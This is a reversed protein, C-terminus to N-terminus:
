SFVCQGDRAVVRGQSIVWARVPRAVVLEALTEGPLVVFDARCGVALGYGERGLVAAGGRTVTELTLELLADTRFGNRWGLLMARELMDANGFPTWADRIADSGSFVQVGASRLRALPPVPRDGPGHTMIAIRHEVLLDLLQGLEAEDVMGLCFAHSVAVKGALGLARTREVILRLEWAGLAGGDHLHIDVGVGHREAIGFVVDLHAVPDGDLGAPDIGGILDAGDKAARDLLEATGPRTVIGSQPFAVIQISVIDKLKARIALVGEFHRLGIETDIDTHNRIHLTGRSIAQRALREIQVEPSLQLLRRLRRENEIREPVTPGAAHPRWPLGWFTKDLHMHGDVFAPLLIGGDGDVVACGDPAAIRPALRQITGDGVLVDAAAGAMPRVNKVLLHDAM